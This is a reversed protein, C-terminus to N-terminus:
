FNIREEEIVLPRHIIRQNMSLIYEGLIGLFIRIISCMMSLIILSPAQGAVFRDWYKIKMILYILGVIFSQTRM